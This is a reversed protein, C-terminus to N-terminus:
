MRKKSEVDWQYFNGLMDAAFLSRSDKSFGISWVRSCSKAFLPHLSKHESDSLSRWFDSLLRQYYTTRTSGLYFEQQREVDFLYLGNGGYAIYRLDPSIVFGGLGERFNPLTIEKVKTLDNTSFYKVQFLKDKEGL